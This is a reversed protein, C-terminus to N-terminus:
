NKKLVNIGAKLLAIEGSNIIGNCFSYIEDIGKGEESMAGAIKHIYLMPLFGQEETANKFNQLM